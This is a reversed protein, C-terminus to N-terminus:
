LKLHFFDVLWFFSGYLILVFLSELFIDREKRKENKFENILRKIGAMGTM